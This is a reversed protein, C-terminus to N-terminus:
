YKWRKNMEKLIFEIEDLAKVCSAYNPMYQNLVEIAKDIKSQLNNIKIKYEKNKYQSLMLQHYQKVCKNYLFENDRYKMKEEFLEM